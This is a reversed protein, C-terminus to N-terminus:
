TSIELYKHQGSNWVPSQDSLAKSSIFHAKRGRLFFFIFGGFKKQSDSLTLLRLLAEAYLKSQVSYGCQEIEESMKSDTYDEDCDGLHNSKWDLLYYLGKFEFFLDIFGTWFVGRYISDADFAMSEPFLFEMEPRCNEPAIQNLTFTENLTSIPTSLVESLMQSWDFQDVVDQPLALLTLWNVSQPKSLCDRHIILFQLAAHLAQGTLPGRPLHHWPSIESDLLSTSPLRRIKELPIPNGDEGKQSMQPEDSLVGGGILEQQPRSKELWASFSTREFAIQPILPGQSFFLAKQPPQISANIKFQEAIKDNCWNIPSNPDENQKRLWQFFPTFDGRDIREILVNQDNTAAGFRALLWELPGIAKSKDRPLPLPIYLHDKARTLAVYLLRAKEAERELSRLDRQDKPLLTQETQSLQGSPDEIQVWESHRATKKASMVVGLAFVHSFELGKCSHLTLIHVDASKTSSPLRLEFEVDGNQEAWELGSLLQHPQLQESQEFDIILQACSTTETQQAFTLEQVMLQAISTNNRWHSSSFATWFAAFGRKFFTARLENRLSYIEALRLLRRKERQPDNSFTPSKEFLESVQCSTWRILPELLARRLARDTPNLVMQLLTKLWSMAPLQAVSRNTQAHVQLQHSAFIREAIQSRKHTDILVAVPREDASIAAIQVAASQCLQEFTEAPPLFHLRKTLPETQPSKAKLLKLHGGSKPLEIWHGVNHTGLLENLAHILSPKARYNTTLTAIRDVYSRAKEYTYIDAHRFAYISQKPDGVFIARVAGKPQLFLREFVAWQVPDTDQFEDVIFIKTESKIFNAFTQDKAREAVRQLVQDFNRAGMYGLSPGLALQCARGLEAFTNVAKKAISLSDSFDESLADILHCTSTLEASPGKKLNKSCCFAFLTQLSDILATGGIEMESTTLIRLARQASEKKALSFRCFPSPDLELAPILPTLQKADNSSQMQEILTLLGPAPRLPISSQAFRVLEKILTEESWSIPKESLLRVANQLASEDFSGLSWDSFIWHSVIRECARQANCVGEKQNILEGGAADQILLRACFGHITTIKAQDFNELADRLYTAAQAISTPGEDIVTQLYPLQLASKHDEDSSLALLALELNKRVRQRMQRAAKKTFTVVTIEDLAIKPKALLYRVILHEIAFTKGTGASAEILYSLTLDLDPALVDFAQSKDLTM